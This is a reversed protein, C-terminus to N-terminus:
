SSPLIWVMSKKSVACRSDAMLLRWSGERDCRGMWGGDRVRKLAEECFRPLAALRDSLQSPVVRREPWELPFTAEQSTAM